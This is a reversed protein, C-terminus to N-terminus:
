KEAKAFFSKAGEMIEEGTLDRNHTAIMWAYGFPDKLSGCRDGWFMDTVAMTVTAGAAVAQRFAADVNPVYLYLGVPSAGQSEAGKCGQGPMEDGMMLISDGIQIVAHMTSKGDPAPYVGLEKAGFAKKYFEIAKLSNKLTLCPTVTHFGEPIAKVKTNM